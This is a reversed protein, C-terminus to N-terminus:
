GPPAAFGGECILAMATDPDAISLLGAAALRYERDVIVRPARPLRARPQRRDLAAQVTAAGDRPHVLAGGTAVVLPVERLDPGDISFRPPGNRAVSIRMRGCHRHLAHTVCAIALDRDLDVADARESVFGPERRRRSVAAALQELGADGARAQWRESLWPEDAALVGPAGWRMGLDGEVTRMVPPPPLLPADFGPPAGTRSVASHVDTTAGGVDIVVVEGAGPRTATGEALLQTARLVAEPTPMAVLREFEDSRSLGKGAIVHSLFLRSIAARAPEVDLEGIRPMVNGVVEARLGSARFREAVQERIDRNCAVIVIADRIRDSVRAAARLVLERQGGDTGGAFLVIEAGGTELEDLADDEIPASVVLQVRAGANLAAQRAAAATLDHVLGIAAVRLGGGASSAALRREITVPPAQDLTRELATTYGAMVDTAVTTPAQGRAVLRGSDSEVLTVKTYTSGFDALVNARV